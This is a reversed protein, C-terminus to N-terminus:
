KRKPETEQKRKKFMPILTTIMGAACMGFSIIVDRVVCTIFFEANGFYAPLGKIGDIITFTQAGAVQNWAAAIQLSWSLYNAALLFVACSVACIIVGPKQIKGGFYEYLKISLLAAVWGSISGPIGFNSLVIWLLINAAAGLVAGLAGKIVSDQKEFENVM